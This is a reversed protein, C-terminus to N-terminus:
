GLPRFDVIHWFISYKFMERRTKKKKFSDGGEEWKKVERRGGINKLKREHILGLYHAWRRLFM